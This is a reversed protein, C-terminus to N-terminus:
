EVQFTIKLNMKSKFYRCFYLIVQAILNKNKCYVMSQFVLEELYLYRVCAAQNKKRACVGLFYKELSIALNCNVNVLFQLRTQMKTNIQIILFMLAEHKRM